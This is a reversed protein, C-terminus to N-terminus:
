VDPCGPLGITQIWERMTNAGDPCLRRSRHCNRYRDSYWRCVASHHGCQRRRWQFRSQCNIREPTTIVTVPLAKFCQTSRTKEMRTYLALILKGYFEGTFRETTGIVLEEIGDGDLDIVAYGVNELPADGYCDMLLTDINSEMLSSGDWKESLRVPTHLLFKWIPQKVFARFRIM